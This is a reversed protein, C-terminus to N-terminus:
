RIKFTQVFKKLAREFATDQIRYKKHQEANTWAFPAIIAPHFSYLTRLENLYYADDAAPPVSPNYELIGWHAGTRELRRFLAPNSTKSHTKGDFVDFVTVGASGLPQMFATQLPSASTELRITDKGAFLYDAPIQHTYFRSAPIRSGNTIWGGFDRLYDAIVRIRFEKWAQWFPNGAEPSRPADFGGEIFYRGSRPLKEQIARYDEFAIPGSQDFYRLSWTRFQQHFDGNFTHGDHNDDSSPALDGAYRNNRIWDRFEAVMFPSYDTYIIPVGRPREGSDLNREYSFEVESDGSISLLTDPFREMAAALHEGAIRAVEEIRRRLPQAYRSPTIWASRPVETTSGFDEPPAIWGDAFWQANRVDARIAAERLRTYGHFLGSIVSVHVPLNNSRAREVILDVEDLTPLILSRDIPKHIDTVHVQVNLFASFGVRVGPAESIRERLEKAQKAFEAATSSTYEIYLPAIFFPEADGAFLFPSFLILTSLAQHFKVVV